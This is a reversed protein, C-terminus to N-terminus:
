KLLDQQTVGKDAVIKTGRGLLGFSLVNNNSAFVVRDADHQDLAVTLVTQAVVGAASADGTGDTPSLVTSPGVGIVDVDSVLIRTFTAPETADGSNKFTVFIAVHSGPTVFGAVRGPDTLEVSIAVMGKPVPLLQQSAATTGFKLALIQEGPYISSLAVQDSMTAISTVAGPVVSSAAVATLAFKGEAQAQAATEGASIVGTATLVKVLSEKTAPEGSAGNVYLAVMSAGAAAILVAVTFLVVRRRM